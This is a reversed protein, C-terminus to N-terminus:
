HRAGHQYPYLGTLISAHSPLTTVCHAHAGSFVRGAAALRDLVPTAAEPHGAFGLADARLTDVTILIADRAPPAQGASTQAGSLAATMLLALLAARPRNVPPSMATNECSVRRWGAVAAQQRWWFHGFRRNM